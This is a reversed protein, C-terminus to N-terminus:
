SESAVARKVAEHLVTRCTPCFGAPKEDAELLSNSFRMVCAHQCHQLGFTHGLEHLAEKLAREAFIEPRVPLQDFYQAHSLRALAIFAERGNLVAQGFCFNLGPAYADADLVGLLRLADPFALDALFALLRPGLYQDRQPDWALAPPPAPRAVIVPLGFAESLGELLRNRVM